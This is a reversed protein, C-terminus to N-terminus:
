ESKEFGAQLLQSYGAALPRADYGKAQLTKGVALARRGSVCHLYVPKNKPIAAPIADGSANIVSMPLLTAAKLHGADWEAQERVDILVASGDGIAIKVQDLSDKTHTIEAAMLPFFLLCTMLILLRNMVTRQQYNKRMEYHAHSLSLVLLWVAKTNNHRHGFV